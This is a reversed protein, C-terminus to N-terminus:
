SAPKGLLHFMKRKYAEVGPQDFPNIGQMLVSVACSLEFFYVLYGLWYADRRPISLRLCPMDGEEHALMTAELVTSNIRHLSMGSLYNLGDANDRREDMFISNESRNVHLHTEFFLREGEQFYQGLSHLDTTYCASSAFVGRGAKGESEAFLQKYWESLSRLFPTYTALVEVKKGQRYHMQRAAAYRLAPNKASKDALLAHQADTAGRLLERVEVGAIALPLLGVATLVSFRGGVDDPIVFRVYGRSVAMDHLAGRAADTIAVVRKADEGAEEADLLGQLLRFAVAPETTTGSKSIVVVAFHRGELRRLVSTVYDPCLTFGLFILEAGGNEKRQDSLATLLAEAGLYSGGIGVIVVVDYDRRLREAEREIEALPTGTMEEPLHLWGLFDSGACDGALLQVFQDQAESLLPTLAEEHTTSNTTAGLSFQLTSM